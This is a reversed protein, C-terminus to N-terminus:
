ALLRLLRLLNSTHCPRASATTPSALTAARELTVAAPSHREELGPSHDEKCHNHSPLLLHALQRALFRWHLLVTDTDTVTETETVTDTVTVTETVTVTDTVTVAQISHRMMPMGPPRAHWVVRLRHCNHHYHHHYTHTRTTAHTVQLWLTISGWPNREHLHHEVLPVRELHYLYSQRESLTRM